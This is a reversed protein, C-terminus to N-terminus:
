PNSHKERVEERGSRGGLEGGGGERRGTGRRKRVRDKEGERKGGM